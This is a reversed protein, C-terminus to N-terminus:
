RQMSADKCTYISHYSAISINLVTIMKTVNLFVNINYNTYLKALASSNRREQVLGNFYKGVM